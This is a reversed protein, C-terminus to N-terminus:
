DRIYDTVPVSCIGEVLEVGVPTVIVTVHPHYTENLWQILPRALEELRKADDEVINVERETIRV